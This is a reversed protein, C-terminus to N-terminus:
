AQQKKFPALERLARKAMAAVPDDDQLVGGRGALRARELSAIAAWTKATDSAEKLSRPAFEDGALLAVNAMRRIALEALEEVSKTSLKTSDIVLTAALKAPDDTSSPPQEVTTKRKPARPKRGTFDAFDIPRLSDDM